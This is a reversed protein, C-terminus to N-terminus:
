RNFVCKYFWIIFFKWELFIRLISGRRIGIVNESFIFIYGIVIVLIGWINFIYFFSSM